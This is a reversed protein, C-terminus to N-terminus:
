SHGDEQDVRRCRSVHDDDHPLTGAGCQMAATADGLDVAPLQGLGTHQLAQDDAVFPSEVLVSWLPTSLSIM